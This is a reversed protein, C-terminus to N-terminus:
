RTPSIPAAYRWHPAARNEPRCAPCPPRAGPRSRPDRLTRAAPAPPPSRGRASRPRPSRISARAGRRSNRAQQAVHLGAPSASGSAARMRAVRAAWASGSSASTWTRTARPHARDPGCARGEHRREQLAGEGSLGPLRLADEGGAARRARGRREGRPLHRRPRRPRAHRRPVRHPRRLWDPQRPRAPRPLRPDGARLAGSGPLDLSAAATAPGGGPPPARAAPRPAPPWLLLSCAALTTAAVAPLRTPTRTM